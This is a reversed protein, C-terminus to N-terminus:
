IQYIKELFFSNRKSRCGSISITNGKYLINKYLDFLNSFVAVDDLVGSEDEISLFAMKKGANDGNKITIEKFQVIEANIVVPGQKGDRFEKCTTDADINECTELKSISLPIGLLDEETKNIWIPNDDLTSSPKNLKELLGQVTKLRVKSVKIKSLRELLRGELLKIQEVEKDTLQSIINYEYLMKSRSYKYHDFGGVSILNIVVTKSLNYLLHILVDTWNMTKIPKKLGQVATILKGFQSEGVGKINTLGFYIEGDSITFDSFLHLISPNNIKIDNYRADRILDKIKGKGDLKYKAFSLWSTYFVLPFHAKIYASWYGVLGYSISHSKNFSYRESKRIMDWIERGKEESVIGTKKVGEIFDKEVQTMLEPIKKGIARRLIDAQKLDFGAIKAAIQLTEEQYVLIQQTEKLIDRISEDICVAEEVRNKRDVFHQTLSKDDLKAKLVGPRLIATLAALDELNEPKLKKSWTQGLPTELQFIGKTSNKFVDWTIPCDLPLNYYDVDIHPIGTVPNIEESLVKFECGCDMKYM